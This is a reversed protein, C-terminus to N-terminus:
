NKLSKIEVQFQNGNKKVKWRGKDMNEKSMFEVFWHTNQGSKYRWSLPDKINYSKGFVTELFDPSKSSCYNFLIELNKRVYNFEGDERIRKFDNKIIKAMQYSSDILRIIEIKRDKTQKGARLLFGYIPRKDGKQKILYDVIEKRELIIAYELMSMRWGVGSKNMFKPNKGLLYIVAEGQDKDGNYIAMRIANWEGSGVWHDVTANEIEVLKKIKALDPKVGDDGVAEYLERDVRIQKESKGKELRIKFRCFWEEGHYWNEFDEFRKRNKQKLDVDTDWLKGKENMKHDGIWEPELLSILFINTSLVFLLKFKSFFLLLKFNRQAAWITGFLIL